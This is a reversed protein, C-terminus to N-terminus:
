IFDTHREAFIIVLNNNAAENVRIFLEKSDLTSEDVREV